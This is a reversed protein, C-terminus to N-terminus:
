RQKRQYAREAQAQRRAVPRPRRVPAAGPRHPFMPTGDGLLVAAVFVLVEDLLGAELCQAGVDAGLVNVYGEGAAECAADVAERLNTAFVVGPPAPDPPRHTLVVVTPWCSRRPWTIALYAPTSPRTRGRPSLMVYRPRGRPIGVAEARETTARAPRRDTTLVATDLEEALEVCSACQRQERPPM